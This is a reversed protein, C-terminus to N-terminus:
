PENVKYACSPILLPRQNTRASLDAKSRPFRLLFVIAAIAFDDLVFDVLVRVGARLVTLAAALV